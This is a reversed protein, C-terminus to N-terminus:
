TARIYVKNDRRRSLLTYGDMDVDKVLRQFGDRTPIGFEAVSLNDRKECGWIKLFTQFMAGSELTEVVDVIDNRVIHIIVSGYNEVEMLIEDQISKKVVNLVYTSLVVDFKQQPKKGSVSTWGDVSEDASPDYAYVTLGRERLYEANRGYGAGYDLVTDGPRVTGNKFLEVVERVPNKFKRATKSSNIEPGNYYM